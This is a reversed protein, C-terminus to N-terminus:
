SEDEELNDFYVVRGAVGDVCVCGPCAMGAQECKMKGEINEKIKRDDDTADLVSFLWKRYEAVIEDCQSMMSTKFEEYSIVRQITMWCYKVQAFEDFVWLEYRDFYRDEYFEFFVEIKNPVEVIEIQHKRYARKKEWIRYSEDELLEGITMNYFMALRVANDITPFQKGLEWNQLSKVDSLGVKDVVEQQTYGYFKRINKLRMGFSIVDFDYKPNM